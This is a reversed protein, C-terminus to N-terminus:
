PKEEKLKKQVYRKGFHLVLVGAAIKAAAYLVMFMVLMNLMESTGATGSMAIEWEELEIPELAAEFVGQFAVKVFVGRALDIGGWVILVWGLLYWKRKAFALFRELWDTKERPPKKTETESSEPQPRLLYDTTVGFLDALAIVKDTEPMTEDREWRSVAQRSVGLREALQEQSMGARQRLAQLREGFTM